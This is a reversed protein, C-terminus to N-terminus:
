IDFYLSLRASKPRHGATISLGEPGIACKHCEGCRLGCRHRHALPSGSHRMETRSPHGPQQHHQPDDPHRSTAASAWATNILDTILM